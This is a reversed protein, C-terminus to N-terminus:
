KGIRQEHLQQEVHGHQCLPIVVQADAVQTTAHVAQVFCWPLRDRGFPLSPEALEGGLDARQLMELEVQWCRAGQLARDAVEVGGRGSRAQMRKPALELLWARRDFDPRHAARDCSATM